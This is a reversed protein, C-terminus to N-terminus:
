PYADTAGFFHTTGDPQYYSPHARGDVNNRGIDPIEAKKGFAHRYAFQNEERIKTGLSGGSGFIRKMFDSNIFTMVLSVSVALLLMYEVMTQGKQNELGM